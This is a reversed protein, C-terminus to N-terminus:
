QVGYQLEADPIPLVFVKDSAPTISGNIAGIPRNLRKFLYFLQGEAFFEKRYEKILESIFLNKDTGTLTATIGRQFRVKNFYTWAQVPDTDFASEAAIYYMESLRIAPLRIDYMNTSADVHYKLTLMMDGMPNSTSTYLNAYRLDTGGPGGSGTEFANNFYSLTTFMGQDSSEFKSVLDSKLGPAYWGFILETYFIKDKLQPDSSTIREKTAWPFKNVILGNVTNKANIVELANSLANTKDQQYLYVRALTGCIAYYNMRDRRTNFFIDNVTNENTYKTNAADKTNSPYGVVYNTSLIPDTTKLLLKAANLDALIKTLVESVKSRPAGKLSFETVYPIAIADPKSAYSPAYLKLLDFYIYGRLALAEGKIIDYNNGTFITKKADINGLIVNCLAVSKYLSSWLSNCKSIVSSNTYEFTIFPKYINYSLGSNSNQAYNGALYDPFGCTIEGYSSSTNCSAYVGNLAEQFGTETQLLTTLEVESQPKVDLWKSCSTLVFISICLIFIYKKM